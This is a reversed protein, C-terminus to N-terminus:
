QSSPQQFTVTHGSGIDFSQWNIALTNGSQNILMQQASPTSIQGAGAIIQGGTPLDAASAFSPLLLASALM